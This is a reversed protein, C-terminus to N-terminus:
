TAAPLRNRWCYIAACSRGKPVRWIWSGRPLPHIADDLLRRQSCRWHVIQWGGIGRPPDGAAFGRHHSGHAAAPDCHLLSQAAVLEGLLLEEGPLTRELRVAKGTQTGRANFLVAPRTWRAARSRPASEVPKRYPVAVEGLFALRLPPIEREVLTIENFSDSNARGKRARLSPQLFADSQSCEAPYHSPGISTEVAPPLRQPLLILCDAPQLAAHARHDSASAM